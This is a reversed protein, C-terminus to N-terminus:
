KNTRHSIQHRNLETMNSLKAAQNIVQDPGPKRYTIKLGNIVESQQKSTKRRM